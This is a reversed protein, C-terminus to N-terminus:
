KSKIPPTPMKIKLDSLDKAKANEKYKQLSTVNREVTKDVKDFYRKVFEEGTLKRMERDVQKTRVNFVFVPEEKNLFAIYSGKQTEFVQTEPIM